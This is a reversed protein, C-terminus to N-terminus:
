FKVMYIRAKDAIQLALNMEQYWLILASIVIFLILYIM